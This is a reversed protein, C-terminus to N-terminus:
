IQMLLYWYPKKINLNPYFSKVTTFKLPKLTGTYSNQTLMFTSNLSKM